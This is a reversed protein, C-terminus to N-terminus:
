RQKVKGDATLPEKIFVGYDKRLKYSLDNMVTDIHKLIHQDTAMTISWTNPTASKVFQYLFEASFENTDLAHKMMAYLKPKNWDFVGQWYHIRQGNREAEKNEEFVRKAIPQLAGIKARAKMGRKFRKLLRLWVKRKETDIEGNTAYQVNTCRGDYTFWMGGFYEVGIEKFKDWWVQYFSSGDNNSTPDSNAMRDLRGTHAIRYRGKGIRETVIPIANHLAMSLSAHMCQWSESPSPLCFGEKTFTAIVTKSNFYEYCLDYQDGRKYLRCWKRIPKGKEPSRCTSFQSECDGYSELIPVQFYHRYQTDTDIHM